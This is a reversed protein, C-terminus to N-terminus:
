REDKETKLYKYFRIVAVIAGFGFFLIGAIGVIWGATPTYRTTNDDFLHNFPLASYSALVFFLCAFFLAIIKNRKSTITNKDKKKDLIYYCIGGGGFFLLNMLSVWVVSGKDSKILLFLSGVSFIICIIYLTKNNIM